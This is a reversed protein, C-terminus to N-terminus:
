MHSIGFKANISSNLGGLRETELYESKFCFISFPFFYNVTIEEASNESAIEDCSM